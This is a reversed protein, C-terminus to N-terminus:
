LATLHYIRGNKYGIQANRLHNSDSVRLGNAAYPQKACYVYGAGYGDPVWLSPATDNDAGLSQGMFGIFFRSPLSTQDALAEGHRDLMAELIPLGIAVSGLGKLISRRSLKFAM